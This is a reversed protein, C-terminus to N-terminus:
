SIFKDFIYVLDYLSKMKNVKSALRLSALCLGYIIKIIVIEFISIFYGIFVKKKTGTYISFFSILYITCFIIIAFMIFYFIFIRFRMQNQQERYKKNIINQNKEDSNDNIEEVFDEEKLAKKILLLEKIKDSCDLLYLFIKYIIWLIIHSILGYLLYYNLDPYNDQEWIKKIVKITFFGCILSLLILYCFIYLSLQICFIDYKGLFLIIKVLYIKDLVEAFFIYTNSPHKKAMYKGYDIRLFLQERRILTICSANGSDVDVGNEKEFDDITFDETYEQNNIPNLKKVKILNKDNFKKLKENNKSDEFLSVRKKTKPEFKKENKKIKEDKIYKIMLNIENNNTNSDTLILYNCESDGGSRKDVLYKTDPSIKFPIKSRDIKKLVGWDNSKFFKTIYESPIYEWKFVGVDSKGSKKDYSESTMNDNYIDKEEEYNNKKPPNNLPRNTTTVV